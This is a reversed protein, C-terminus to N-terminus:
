NMNEIKFWMLRGMYIAYMVYVDEEPYFLFFPSVNRCGGEMM